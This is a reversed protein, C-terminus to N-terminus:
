PKRITLCTKYVGNNGSDCECNQFFFFFNIIVLRSTKWQEYLYQDTVCVHISSWHTLCDLSYLEWVSSDQSHKKCQHAQTRWKPLGTFVNFTIELCMTHVASHIIVNIFTCICTKGEKSFLAALQFHCCGRNNSIRNNQRQSLSVMWGKVFCQVM